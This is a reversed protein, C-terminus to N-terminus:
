SSAKGMLEETSTGVCWGVWPKQTIAYQLVSLIKGDQGRIATGTDARSLEQTTDSGVYTYNVTMWKDSPGGDVNHVKQTAVGLIQGHHVSGTGPPVLTVFDYQNATRMEGVHMSADYRRLDEAAQQARSQFNAPRNMDAESIYQCFLHGAFSPLKRRTDQDCSSGLVILLHSTWYSFETIPVDILAFHERVARFLPECALELTDRFPGKKYYLHTAIKAQHIDVMFSIPKTAPPFCAPVGQM